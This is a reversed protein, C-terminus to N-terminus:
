YKKGNCKNFNWWKKKIRYPLGTLAGHDKTKYQAQGRRVVLEPRFEILIWRDKRNPQNRSAETKLSQPPSGAYRQTLCDAPRVLGPSQYPGTGLGWGPNTFGESKHTLLWIGYVFVVFITNGILAASWSGGRLERIISSIEPHRVFKDDMLYIYICAPLPLKEFFIEKPSKYFILDRKIPILKEIQAQSDSQYYPQVRVVTSPPMTLGMADSPKANSFSLAAGFSIIVIVKKTKSKANSAFNKVFLFVTERNKAIQRDIEIIEDDSYSISYYLLSSM